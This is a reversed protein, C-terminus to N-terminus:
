LHENVDYDYSSTTPVYKPSAPRELQDRSLAM